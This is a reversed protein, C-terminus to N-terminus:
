TANEFTWICEKSTEGYDPSRYIRVLVKGGETRTYLLKPEEGRNLREEIQPYDLLQMFAERDEESVYTEAYIKIAVSFKGGSQRAASHFYPPIYIYRFTDIKLDLIYVGLYKSSLVSCFIDMDRKEMLTKELAHDMERVRYMEGRTEHYQHKAEYMKVEAQKVMEYVFPIRERSETGVSIHYGRAEIQKEARKITEEVQKSSLGRLFAVFEDGGIRYVDETKLETKLVEAVTKLLQDGAEHGYQNNIDHLGDADIYVCTLDFDQALEYRELAIQYSNRNKLGTLRDTSGMEEIAQFSIINKIAMSFSLMVCELLDTSNIHKKMNAVGLSGVHTGDPEKVPIAILSNIGIKKLLLYEDKSNENLEKMNYSIINGQKLFASCLVPFDNKGFNEQSEQNKKSWTYMKEDSNKSYIIFFACEAEHRVAIEQLADEIQKPNRAANFLKKEIKLMYQVRDLERGRERFAKRVMIYVFLLYLLFAIIEFATFRRMTIRINEADRLTVSKPQGLVVMWDNIGVPEYVCYYYEKSSRSFFVTKGSVGNEIESKAQKYSYGKKVPRDNLDEANLLTSHMTDILFTGNKGEILQISTGPELNKSYREELKRLDVIGCLLGTTTENKIVPVFYYLYFDDSNDEVRSSLHIGKEAEDSFSIAALNDSLEEKDTYIKGDPLIFGIADIIAGARSLSLVQTIETTSKETGNSLYDAIIQLLRTDSEVDDQIKEAYQVTAEELKQFCSSTTLHSIYKAACLSIICLFAVLLFAMQFYHSYQKKNVSQTPKLGTEEAM